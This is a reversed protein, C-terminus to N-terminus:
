VGHLNFLLIGRTMVTAVTGVHMSLIGRTMVTAVHMSQRIEGLRTCALACEWLEEPSSRGRTVSGAGSTLEVITMSTPVASSKSCVGLMKCEVARIRRRPRRTAIRIHQHRFAVGRTAEAFRQQVQPAGRGGRGGAAARGGRHQVSLSLSLTPLSLPLSPSSKHLPLQVTHAPARTTSAFCVKLTVICQMRVHGHGM